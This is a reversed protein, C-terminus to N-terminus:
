KKLNEYINKRLGFTIFYIKDKEVQYIVRMKGSRYSRLGKLSYRLPKGADPNKVITEIVEDIINREGAKLKKYRQLFERSFYVKM